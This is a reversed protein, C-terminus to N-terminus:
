HGMKKQISELNKDKTKLLQVIVHRSVSKKAHIKKPDNPEKVKYM